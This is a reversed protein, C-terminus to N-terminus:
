QVFRLSYNPGSREVLETMNDIISDYQAKRLELERIRQNQTQIQNKAEELETELEKIRDKM